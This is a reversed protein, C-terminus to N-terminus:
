WAVLISVGDKLVCAKYSLSLLFDCMHKACEHRNTLPTDDVIPPITFCAYPMGLTACLKIHGMLMNQIQTMTKEHLVHSADALVRADQAELLVGNEIPWTSKTCSISRTNM